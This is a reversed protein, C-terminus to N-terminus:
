SCVELPQLILGANIGGFGSNCTIVPGPEISQVRPQVRDRALEEPRDCGLTPFVRGRGTSLVALIAELIGAAGLTHGLAGKISCIPPLKDGFVHNFAKLEMIDNFVTATGHAHIARIAAPFIAATEFLLQLTKILGSAERDPATVHSADNACAGALIRAIPDTPAHEPSSLLAAAACEGLALGDRDRDFPRPRSASVANLSIFGRQVFLSFIDVGLVLGRRVRGAAIDLALNVLAMTSSACAANIYLKRAGRLFPYREFWALWTPAALKGMLEAEDVSPQLTAQELIDIPGKTTALIFVDVPPLDGLKRIARDCLHYFRSPVEDEVAPLDDMPAAMFNRERGPYERLQRLACDGHELRECVQDPDDGLPTVLSIQSIVPYRQTM